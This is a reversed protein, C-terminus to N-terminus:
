SICSQVEETRYTAQQSANRAYRNSLRRSRYERDYVTVKGHWTDLLLASFTVNAILEDILAESIKLHRRPDFALTTNRTYRETNPISDPLITYDLWDQYGRAGNSETNNNHATVNYWFSNDFGFRLEERGSSEFSVHRVSRTYNGNVRYSAVYAECTLTRRELVMTVTENYLPYLNHEVGSRVLGEISSTIQFLDEIMSVSTYKVSLLYWLHRTLCIGLTAIISARFLAVLLLSIVSVRSQRLTPFTFVDRGDMVRFFLYHAIAFVWAAAYFWAVLYITRSFKANAADGNDLVETKYRSITSFLKKDDRDLLSM